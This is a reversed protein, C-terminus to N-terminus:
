LSRAILILADAQVAPLSRGRVKQLVHVYRELFRQQQWKDRRGGGDALRLWLLLEHELGEDKM